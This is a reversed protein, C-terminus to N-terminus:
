LLSGTFISKVSDVDAVRRAFVAKLESDDSARQAREFVSRQVLLANIVITIQNPNLDLKSM